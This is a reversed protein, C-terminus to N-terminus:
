VLSSYYCTRKSNVSSYVHQDVKYININIPNSLIQTVFNEINHSNYEPCEYEKVHMPLLFDCVLRFAHATLLFYYLLSVKVHANILLFETDKGVPVSTVEWHTIVHKTVDEMEERVNTLIVQHEEQFSFHLTSIIQKKTLLICLFIARSHNTKSFSARAHQIWIASSVM